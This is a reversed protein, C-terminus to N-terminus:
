PLAARRVVTRESVGLVEAVTRWSARPSAMLAAVIRRDPEDLSQRTQKM